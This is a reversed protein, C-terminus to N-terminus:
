NTQWVDEPGVMRAGEVAHFFGNSFPAFPALTALRTTAESGDMEDDLVARCLDAVGVMDIDHPWLRFHSVGNARMGPIEPLLNAITHSLTQTGNIALFAEGDVTAVELGDADKECVFRCNARGLGALRAHYCRASLALPLRGFVQVEVEVEVGAGDGLGSAACGLVSIVKAPLEAPLVVRRAGNRALWILTGENYLNIFPGAVHARGALLGLASMDNAEVLCGARNQAVQAELERIEVADAVPALTSLVVQKGAAALREIVASLHPAFFPARKACIVEGVYVVDVRAEDAICFYFDRMKEAPWNYQVPGLTLRGPAPGENSRPPVRSPPTPGNTM